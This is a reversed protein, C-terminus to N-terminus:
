NKFINKKNKPILYITLKITNTITIINKKNKNHLPPNYLINIYTNKQFKKTSM